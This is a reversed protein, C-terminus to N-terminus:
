GFVQKFEGSEMLSEEQIKKIAKLFDDMLIKYRRKRIAFYGAETCVAKVEAGSFDKMLEVVKDIDVKKDLNM